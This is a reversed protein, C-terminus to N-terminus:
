QQATKYSNPPNLQHFPRTARDLPDNQELSFWGGIKEHCSWIGLLMKKGSESGDDLVRFYDQWPQNDYVMTANVKNRYEIMPLSVNGWVPLPVVIRNWINLVLPDGVYTSRYRKGWSWGIRELQGLTHNVVDLLSGTHIVRGRWNCIMDSSVAPPLADFLQMLEVEDFKERTGKRVREKLANIQPITLSVYRGPAILPNLPWDPGNWSSLPPPLRSSVVTILWNSPWFLFTALKYFWQPFYFFFKGKSFYVRGGTAWWFLLFALVKQNRTLKLPSEACLSDLKLMWPYKKLVNLIPASLTSLHAGM